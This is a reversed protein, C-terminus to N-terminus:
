ECSGASGDSREPRRGVLVETEPSFKGAKGPDFPPEEQEMAHRAKARGLTRHPAAPDPELDAGDIVPV